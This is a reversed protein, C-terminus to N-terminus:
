PCPNPHMKHVGEIKLNVDQGLKINFGSLCNKLQHLSTVGIVTSMVFPRSNVFALAMQAPDLGSEQALKIYKTTALEGERNSYRDYRDFLKRRSGVPMEGGLYKGTLVGFGLPSYALLGVNERHSVESLGIEFSRNLLSYPNQISIIRPLDFIESSKLYEMVGWPSENSIGIQLVKGEKVLGALVELTERISTTKEMDDYDYNLKGFNNIKREPWHIQYLDIYDTGLRKLSGNIANYIDKKNLKAEGMRIHTLAPSPGTVKTALVVNSRNSRDKMWRGIYEEPLGQTAANIPIPYMEATDIFNVGSEFAFDLLEYADDLSTQSGFTMTGLCVSSIKQNTNRLLSFQM